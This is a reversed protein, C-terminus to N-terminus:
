VWYQGNRLA